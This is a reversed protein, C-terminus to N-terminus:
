TGDDPRLRRTHQPKGARHRSALKVTYEASDGESITLTTESLVLRATDNDTVTVTVSDANLGDYDGGTPTHTLTVTDNVADNDEHGTVEVTQETEWDLPTFTLSTEDVSVDTGAYGGITVTVNETPETTLRVTYSATTGGETLTLSTPTVVIRKPDNDLIAARAGTQKLYADRPNSIDFAFYEIVESVNDNTVDVTVTKTTERPQFEVTGEVGTYDEDEVANVIGVARGSVTGPLNGTSYDVSVLESASGELTITGVSEPVFSTAGGPGNVSAVQTADNDEITGQVELTSTGGSLNAQDSIDTLRLFFIEEDQEDVSDDIVPVQITKGTQGAQFRLTQAGGEPKTYDSGAEATEDILEYQLDVIRSISPNVTVLFELEGSGESGRAPSLSIEPVTMDTITVSVDTPTVDDYDGGSVSHGIYTLPNDQTDGDEMARVNVRRGREWNEQTFTIESPNVSLHGGEGPEVRITVTDTPMSHLRIRYFSSGGNEELSIVLPNVTIGRTDDDTITLTVPTVPLADAQNEDAIEGQLVITEDTEDLDDDRTTLQFTQTNSTQGATIVIEFPAVADFDSGDAANAERSDDDVSVRVTLDTELPDADLEDADLEATVTVTIEQAEAM